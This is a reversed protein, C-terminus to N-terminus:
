RGEIYWLASIVITVVGFLMLIGALLWHGLLALAIPSGICTVTWLVSVVSYIAIESISSSRMRM